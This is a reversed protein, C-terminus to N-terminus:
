SFEDQGSLFRLGLALRWDGWLGSGARACKSCPTEIGSLVIMGRVRNSYMLCENLKQGTRVDLIKILCEYLHHGRGLLRMCFVMEGLAGLM